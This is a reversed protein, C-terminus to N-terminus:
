FLACIYEGISRRPPYCPITSKATDFIKTEKIRGCEQQFLWASHAWSEPAFRYRLACHAYSWFHCLIATPRHAFFKYWTGWLFVMNTNILCATLNL